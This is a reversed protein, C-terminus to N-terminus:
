NSINSIKISSDKKVEFKNFQQYIERSLKM